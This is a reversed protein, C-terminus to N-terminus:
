EPKAKRHALLFQAETARDSTPYRQVLQQLYRPQNSLFYSSFLLDDPYASNPFKVQLETLIGDIRTQYAGGIDPSIQDTDPNFRQTGTPVGAPPHIRTTEGPEHNEWQWLLTMAVMYLTKERLQPPTKPDDLLQQYLLLAVGNQSASQYAQHVGSEGRKALDCVWWFRCDYRDNAEVPYRKSMSYSTPLYYTRSGDWIPLYGNKWGGEGAWNSALQYRSDPTNATKLTLLQQWRQRQETLMAQMEQQVEATKDGTWWSWGAKYYSELIKAPMAKLNLNESTQLAKAYDQSRAAKVAVAYRLLPAIAQYNPEQSLTQIQEASLGVDLLTRVHPYALYLADRDGIESTMMTLWLRMAGLIDGQDQLSHALLYTADDAGPHDPYRSLWQQWDRVQDAASKKANRDLIKQSRDEGGFYSHGTLDGYERCAQIFKSQPYKTAMGILLYYAHAGRDADDGGFGYFVSRTLSYLPRSDGNLIQQLLTSGQPDNHRDLEAIAWVRDPSQGDMALSKFLAKAIPSIQGAKVVGLRNVLLYERSAAPLAHYYAIAAQIQTQNPQSIQEFKTWESLNPIPKVPNGTSPFVKDYGLLNVLFDFNFQNYFNPSNEPELNQKALQILRSRVQPDDLGFEREWAKQDESEYGSEILLTDLKSTLLYFNPTSSRRQVQKTLWLTTYPKGLSRIGAMGYAQRVGDRSRAYYELLPYAKAGYQKWVPNTLKSDGWKVELLDQRVAQLIPQWQPDFRLRDRMVDDVEIQTLKSPSLGEAQNAAEQPSPITQNPAAVLKTIPLDAAVLVLVGLTAGVQCWWKRYIQGAM